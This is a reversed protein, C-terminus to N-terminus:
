LFCVVSAGTFPVTPLPLPHNQQPSLEGRQSPLTQQSPLHVNGSHTKSRKQTVSRRAPHVETSPLVGYEFFDLSKHQWSAPPFPWSHSQDGSM